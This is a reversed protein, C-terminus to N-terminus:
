PSPRLCSRRTRCPDSCHPPCYASCVAVPRASASSPSSAAVGGRHSLPHIRAACLRGYRPTLALLCAVGNAGGSLRLYRPDALRSRPLRGPVPCLADKARYTWLNRGLVLLCVSRLDVTLPCEELETWVQTWFPPLVPTPFTWRPARPAIPALSRRVSAPSATVLPQGGVTLLHWPFADYASDQAFPLWSASPPRQALHEPSFPGALRFPSPTSLAYATLSTTVTRPLSAWLDAWPLSPVGGPLRPAYPLPRGNVSVSLSPPPALRPDSSLLDAPLPGLWLIDGFTIWGTRAYTVLRQDTLVLSPFATHWPLTLLAPAPLSSWAASIGLDVTALAHLLREFLGEARTDGHQLATFSPGCRALLLAPPAAFRRRLESTLSLRLWRGVPTDECLYRRLFSISLATAMHDPNLLGLGGLSRPLTLDSRSIFPSTPAFLYPALAAFYLDAFDTPLAGLSISHWLRSTLFQKAKQVRTLFSVGLTPFCLARARIAAFRAAIAPLPPEMSLSIPHGLHVLFPRDNTCTLGAAALTSALHLVAPMDSAAPSGVLWFSSKAVNVEANSTRQYLTLAACLTQWQQLGHASAALFVLFDDAFALSTLFGLGPVLIGVGWARLLDLLPQLTLNYVICSSPDGQLVGCLFRVLATIGDATTFRTSAAAYLAGLLRLLLDPLGLHRLCAFLWEHRVRDYAKRQDLSVVFFAPPSITSSESALDTLGQLIGSVLTTRRGPLFAAQNWPLLHEAATLLRASLMRAMTRVFSDSISINRYNGLNTLDGMKPLIISRAQVEIPTGAGLDNALDALLPGAVPLLEIWVRYPLGDPGASARRNALRLAAGVEDATFPTALQAAIPLPLSSLLHHFLLACDTEFTLPLPSPTYLSSFYSHIAGLKAEPTTCITGDYSLDPLPTTRPSSTTSSLWSSLRLEAAALRSSFPLALALELAELASRYQQLLGPLSAVDAPSRCDVADLASSVSALQDLLLRQPAGYTVSLNHLHARAAHSFLKWAQLPTLSPLDHTPSYQHGFSHVAACFASSRWLGPHLAWTSHWSAPDLERPPPPPPAPGFHAVVARHDSSTHVSEASRLSPLLSASCLISDLRRASSLVPGTASRAIRFYTWCLAPPVLTQPTSSPTRFPTGIREWSAPSPPM